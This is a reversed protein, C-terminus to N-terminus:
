NTDQLITHPRPNWGRMLSSLRLRGTRQDGPRSADVLMGGGWEMGVLLSM